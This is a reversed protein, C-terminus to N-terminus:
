LYVIMSKKCMKEQALSVSLSELYSHGSLFFTQLFLCQEEKRQKQATEKNIECKQNSRICFFFILPLSTTSILFFDAMIELLRKGTPNKALNAREWYLIRVKVSTNKAAVPAVKANEELFKLVMVVTEKSVRCKEMVVWNVKLPSFSLKAQHQQQPAAALLRRLNIETKNFGM